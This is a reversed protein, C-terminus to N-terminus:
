EVEYTSDYFDTLDADGENLVSVDGAEDDTGVENDITKIIDAVASDVDEPIAVAPPQDGPPAPKVTASKNFCGGGVLLLGGVIAVTIIKQRMIM